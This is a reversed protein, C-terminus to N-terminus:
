SAKCLVNTCLVNNCLVNNCLVDNCFVNNCLVSNCLANHNKLNKETTVADRGRYVIPRRAYSVRGVLFVSLSSM